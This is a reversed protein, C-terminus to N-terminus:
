FNGKTIGKISNIEGSRGRFWSRNVRFKKQHRKHHLWIPFVQQQQFWFVKMKKKKLWGLTSYATRIIYNPIFSFVATSRLDTYLANKLSLWQLTDPTSNQNKVFINISFELSSGTKGSIRLIQNDVGKKDKGFKVRLLKM